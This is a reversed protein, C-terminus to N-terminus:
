IEGIFAKIISLACVPATDAKLIQDGLSLVPIGSGNVLEVEDKHFGGEPGIMFSIVEKIDKNNDSLWKSLLLDANEYFFLGNDNKLGTVAHDFDDIIEIKPIIPYGSQMSAMKAIKKFRDSKSSEKGSINSITNRSNFFLISDVGLETCKQIVYENKEGKLMAMYLKKKVSPRKLNEKSRILLSFSKKTAGTVEATYVSSINDSMKFIDGNHPRFACMHRFDDDTLLIEENIEAPSIFFIM